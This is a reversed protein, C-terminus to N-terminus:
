LRPSVLYTRDLSVILSTCYMHIAIIRDILIKRVGLSQQPNQQQQLYNISKNM